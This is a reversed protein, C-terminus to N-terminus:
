SGLLRRALTNVEEMLGEASWSILFSVLGQCEGNQRTERPLLELDTTVARFSIWVFGQIRPMITGVCCMEDSAGFARTSVVRSACFWLEAM